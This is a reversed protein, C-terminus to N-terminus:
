IVTGTKLNEGKIERIEIAKRTEVKMEKSAKIKSDNKRM